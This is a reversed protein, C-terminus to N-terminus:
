AEEPLGDLVHVSRSAGIRTAGLELFTLADACTRIGGSAKVGIRDGVTQRMLQVAEKTAGGVAGTSTKVFAVRAELAILCAQEIEAASLLSTELIAKVPRGEAARVVGALDDRVRAREGGRLRGIAIVVDLEDAGARVARRAEFAKVDPDNAGSPFGVVTCTRVRSGALQGAALAVHTPYVVAAAFGEARAVACHRLVDDETATPDLLAHDIRSALESRTIGM